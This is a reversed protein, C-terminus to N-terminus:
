NRRQDMPVIECEDDLLWNLRVHSQTANMVQGTRCCRAKWLIDNDFYYYDTKSKQGVFRFSQNNKLGLKKRILFIILKKLM